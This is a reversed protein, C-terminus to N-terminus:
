SSASEEVYEGIASDWEKGTPKRGRPRQYLGDDGKTLITKKQYPEKKTEKPNNFVHGCDKCTKTAVWV